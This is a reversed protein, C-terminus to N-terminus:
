RMTILVVAADGALVVPVVPVPVVAAVVADFRQWMRPLSRMATVVSADVLLLALFAAGVMWFQVVTLVVLVTRVAAVVGVIASTEGRRLRVAVPVAVVHVAVPVVVARTGRVCVQVQELVRSGRHRRM